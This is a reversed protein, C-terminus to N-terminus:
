KFSTAARLDTKNGPALGAPGLKELDATVWANLDVNTVRFYVYKRLFRTLIRFDGLGARVM